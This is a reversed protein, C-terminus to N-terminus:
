QVPLGSPVRNPILARPDQAAPDTLSKLFTVLDRQEDATLDLPIRFRHELTSLVDAITTEDGHYMGRLAPDLQSVDYTRLALPVNDYHRVVAELTPYTGNHMYPATLEVNRLPPARFAFRYASPFHPSSNGHPSFVVEERGFDLPAGSGVGPGLQPVGVNAFQEGGLLPGGHCSACPLRGFFLLAGRKAELSLALDDRALYRDFPSDYRSFAQMVFAAIATTAHQFGLSSAPRNPFAASFMAAYEPIALLRRVIAQWIEVYQSDAFQALENPNGSVDVDGPEGRMERRNLVPLMAQAALINPLGSPLTVDPPGRFPGSGHGALRGDWFLYVPRLGQNLLTPSNRPVFERGPGLRRSPGLGTGGTGIPLSLGDTGHTLPHHCTACSIDRNGSLIKDFLLAQGLDVLAPNQAPMPGIPMAGWRRLAERLQADIAPPPPPEPPLVGGDCGGLVLLGVVTGVPRVLRTM